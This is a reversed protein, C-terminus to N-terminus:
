DSKGGSDSKKELNAAQALVVKAFTELPEGIVHSVAKIGRTYIITIEYQESLQLGLRAEITQASALDLAGGPFRNRLTWAMVKTAILADKGDKNLKGHNISNVHFTYIHHVLSLTAVAPFLRDSCDILPPRLVKIFNGENTTVPLDFYHENAKSVAEDILRISPFNGYFANVANWSENFDMDLLLVRLIDKIRLDIAAPAECADVVEKWWSTQNFLKVVQETQKLRGYGVEIANNM